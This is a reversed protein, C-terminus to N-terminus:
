QQQGGFVTRLLETTRAAPNERIKQEESALLSFLGDLSKGTVYEKPEFDVAPALPVSKYRDHLQNYLNVVGAEELRKEVVPLYKQKLQGYTKERLYNTAATKGGTLIEKADAFTINKIADTFVPGAQKAADAAAQNMKKELTEVQNGMGVTKLVDGMKQLKDPLQIRLAPNESYADEQSATEVARQAGVQLAERLGQAITATDPGGASTDTLQSGLGLENMTECGCLPGFLLLAAATLTAFTRM